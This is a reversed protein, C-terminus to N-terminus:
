SPLLVKNKSNLAWEMDKCIQILKKVMNTSRVNPVVNFTHSSDRLSYLLYIAVYPYLYDLERAFSEMRCIDLHTGKLFYLAFCKSSVQLWGLKYLNIQVLISQGQPSM